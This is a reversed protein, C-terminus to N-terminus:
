SALCNLFGVQHHQLCATPTLPHLLLNLSPIIPRTDRDVFESLLFRQARDPEPCAGDMHGLGRCPVWAGGVPQRVTHMPEACFPPCTRGTWGMALVRLKLALTTIQTFYVESLLAVGSILGAHSLKCRILKCLPPCRRCSLHVPFEVSSVGIVLTVLMALVTGLQRAVSVYKV